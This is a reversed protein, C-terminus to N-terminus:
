SLETRFFSLSAAGDKEFTGNGEISIGGRYDVQKMIQFFRAYVPDEGTDLPWRRGEPNAFHMHVIHRGATRVIEPDEREVRMHYYDIIMQVQPHNVENVLRLAEAGTNIINSEQKRLPEIAITIRKRRAIDGARNLFIKMQRWAEDRSFGEPVNRSGASGWVAVTTGLERCRELTTELYASAAELDSEPGVVKLTRILSNVSECRIRSALVRDRFGAFEGDTMTSIAAASPEYYDFGLQEAKSFNEASGCVGVQVSSNGALAPLAAAGLAALVTRRSPNTDRM